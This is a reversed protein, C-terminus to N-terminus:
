HLPMPYISGSTILGTKQYLVANSMDRITIETYDNGFGPEGNDQMLIEVKVPIYGDLMGTLQAITSDYEVTPLLPTFSPDDYCLVSVQNYAVVSHYMSGDFYTMSFWPTISGDCTVNTDVSVFDPWNGLTFNGFMRGNQTTKNFEANCTKDYTMKVTCDTSNGCSSCDGTWGFFANNGSVSATLTVFTGDIFDASCTGGCNIGAPNSTVTGDGTGTKSVTLTYLHEFRAVCVKNSNMNLSCVPNSGCVNCDGDWYVLTNDPDPTATLTVVTNEDFYESCTSGCNIGAPNSTVTGSGFGIKLVSLQYHINVTIPISSSTDTAGLNDVVQCKANFTGKAMYTHNTSNTATTQDYIGDGDFDWNYEVISGDSDSGSCTFNVMLPAYGNTPSATFNTVVPPQNFDQLAALLDVRPETFNGCATNFSLPVGTTQLSSIIDDVSPSSGVFERMVAFAGTIHPAAMSTGSMYGYNNGFVSSLISSGPAFIYNAFDPDYNSFGSRGDTKTSSGVPIASSICAPYGIGDCYSSNGASIVVAIGAAKLLDIVSKRSDSDCYTGSKGGGLSMNVAAINYTNRLDYVRQLASIQDSKYSLLCPAGSSGCDSAKNVKSFVQIAIINADRAVGYIGNSGYTDDRGAAIGAVHTGHSCASIGVCKSPDAAGPGVMSTNGNPCLTEIDPPSDTSYCAESVVKGSLFKHSSDVGTDLIAVTWGAGTYGADSAGDANILPISDVLSPPEPVDEDISQVLPNQCLESIVTEDAEILILPLVDSFRKLVRSQGPIDKLTNEISLKAQRIREKAKPATKENVIDKPSVGTNLVVIIRVKGESRAKDILTKDTLKDCPRGPETPDPEGPLGFSIGVLFFMLAILTSFNSFM